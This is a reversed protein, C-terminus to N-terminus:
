SSDWKWEVHLSFSGVWSIQDFSCSSVVFYNQINNVFSCKKKNAQLKRSFFLFWDSRGPYKRTDVTRCTNCKSPNRSCANSLLIRLGGLIHNGPNYRAIWNAYCNDWAYSFGVCTNIRISKDKDFKGIIVISIIKVQRKLTLTEYSYYIREM